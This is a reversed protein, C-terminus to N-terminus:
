YYKTCVHGYTGDDNKGDNSDDEIQATAILFILFRKECELEIWFFVTVLGSVAALMM